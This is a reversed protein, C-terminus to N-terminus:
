RCAEVYFPQNDYVQLRIQGNVSGDLDWSPNGDAIPSYVAGTTDVVRLCSGVFTVRQAAATTAWLVTKEQGYPMQFVYGEVNALDLERRYRAGDLEHAVTQYAFYALKRTTGDIKILGATHAAGLDEASGPVADDFVKYYSMLELPVSLGRAYTQAVWRAQKAESSDAFKPSSWFGMEPCLLPLDAVGQQAMIDKVEWAKERITPWAGNIPYYHFAVADIYASAGGPYANLASLTDALFSRVFPGGYEEFWDYALGGIMVRAHADAAHMAPSVQALMAAFAWANHGWRENHDPEPYFSWTHVCPSGPADAVGDCDYREVAAAAFNVMAAVDNVPGYPTSAVWAPNSTILVFLDLGAAQANQAKADFSSWNYVGKVPEAVSWHLMVSAWKSGATEMVPLGAADDVDGYMVVGFPSVYAPEHFRAVLPVYSTYAGTTNLTAARGGDAQAELEAALVQAPMMGDGLVVFCVCMVLFGALLLASALLYSRKM